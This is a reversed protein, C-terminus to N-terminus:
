NKNKNNKCNKEYYDIVKRTWFYLEDMTLTRKTKNIDKHIWWVNGEIYGKTNDIRDLSATRYKKELTIPINSIACLGNQQKYLNFLYKETIDYYINRNNAGTRIWCVISLWNSPKIISYNIINKKPYHINYCIDLFDDDSFEWKIKNIIKHVIRINDIVYGKSCDIRDISVTTDSKTQTKSGFVINEGTICCKKDQKLYLDWIDKATINFLLGRREAQALYQNMYRESIEKYVRKNKISDFYRQQKCGCSGGQLSINQFKTEFIKGCYCKVLIPKDRGFYETSVLELNFKNLRNKVTQLRQSKLLIENCYKCKKSRRLSDPRITLINLCKLCQFQTSTEQNKYEGVCIFGIKQLKQLVPSM